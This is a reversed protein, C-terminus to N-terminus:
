NIDNTASHHVVDYMYVHVRKLELWALVIYQLALNVM